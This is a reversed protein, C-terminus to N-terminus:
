DASKRKDGLEANLFSVIEEYTRASRGQELFPRKLVVVPIGLDLAAAIKTDTGGAKGSDKTVIVSANYMKFTAKNIQKSFPGQMAVLDRPTLGLDQCKKVIKYDPLIRVVIRKKKRDIWGLFQELNHSGTTLFITDGLKQAFEAAEQWSTVPYILSNRPLKTEERLYRIYPLRNNECFEYLLKSIKDAFPHSADVVAQIAKEEFIKALNKTTIEGWRVEVANEGALQGGYETTTLAMCDYGKAVLLSIIERGERTGCAVAIM